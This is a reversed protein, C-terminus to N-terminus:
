LKSLLYCHLINIIEKCFIIFVKFSVIGRRNQYIKWMPLHLLSNTVDEVIEHYEGTMVVLAISPFYNQIQNVENTVVTADVIESSYGVTFKEADGILKKLNVLLSDKNGSTPNIKFM